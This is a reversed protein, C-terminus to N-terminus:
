GGGAGQSPQTDGATAVTAFGHTGLGLSEQSVGLRSQQTSDAGGPTDWLTASEVSNVTEVDMEDDAALEKEVLDPVTKEMEDDAAPEKEVLDPVTTEMEDDKGSEKELIDPVDVEEDDVEAIKRVKKKGSGSSEGWKRKDVFERVQERQDWRRSGYRQGMSVRFFRRPDVTAPKDMDDNNESDEDSLADYNNSVEVNVENKKNTNLDKNGNKRNKNNRNKRNRKEKGQVTFGREDHQDLDGGRDEQSHQAPVEAPGKVPVQVPAEEPAQVAVAGWATDKARNDINRVRNIDQSAPLREHYRERYGGGTGGGQM